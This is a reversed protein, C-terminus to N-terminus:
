GNTMADGVAIAGLPGADTGLGAIGIMSDINGPLDEFYGGLSLLAARRARDALWPRACAIGGGLAIREPSVALILSALLEGLDHVVADWVPHDDGIRDGPIGSRAAIAPGSILGEICDGHFPCSGGFNDGPLRRAKLHGFEPHLWGHVPEGHVVIGVGIGTGLTVYANCATGAAGGWRAEALAAANVDTDFGVEVGLLRRYRGGIDTGAWGPKPTKLVFGWDSRRRDVGVPGFSAIGLAEPPRQRRWSDFLADVAGLTADPDTTPISVRDLIRRGVARLAVCKTGGLELGYIHPEDMERGKHM